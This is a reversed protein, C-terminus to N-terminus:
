IQYRYESIFAKQNIHLHNTTETPIFSSTSTKIEEESRSPLM